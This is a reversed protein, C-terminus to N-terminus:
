TVLANLTTVGNCQIYAFCYKLKRVHEGMGDRPAILSCCSIKDKECLRYLLKTLLDVDKSLVHICM